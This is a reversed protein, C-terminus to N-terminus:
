ASLQRVARWPIKSRYDVYRTREIVISEGGRLGGPLRGRHIRVNRYYTPSLEDVARQHVACERWQDATEADANLVLNAWNAGPLECSSYSLIDPYRTFERVIKANAKELPSIDLDPNRQSLFGVAYLENAKLLAEPDCVIVRRRMGQVKWAIRQYPAFMLIGAAAGDLLARLEGLLATLIALDHPYLDVSTFPRRAVKQDPGLLTETM